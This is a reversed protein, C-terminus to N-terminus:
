IFTEQLVTELCCAIFQHLRMGIGCVLSMETFDGERDRIVFSIHNYFINALYLNIQILLARVKKSYIGTFTSCFCESNPFLWFCVM